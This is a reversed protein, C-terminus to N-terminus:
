EAEDWNDLASKDVGRRDRTGAMWWRGLAYKGLAFRFGTEYVKIEGGSEDIAMFDVRRRKKRRISRWVFITM